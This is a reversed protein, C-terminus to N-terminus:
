DKILNELTELIYDKPIGYITIILDILCAGKM